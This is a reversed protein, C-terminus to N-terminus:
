ASLEAARAAWARNIPSHPKAALRERALAQAVSRRGSRVAAEVATWHFLDRQAHSGGGLSLKSLVPMLHDLAPGHDGFAFAALGRMAPLGVERTMLANIHPGRAAKEAAAFLRDLAPVRETKALAMVAHMDNFAYLGDDARTEWADAVAIWRDGVDHGLADLRWLVASADCLQLAEQLGLTKIRRDYIDLVADFREREIEALALHWWNHCALLGNEDWGQQTADLWAVNEDARGQMELVHAVAHAGWGDQPDRAVAERGNEEARAYEGTEELGFAYMGLLYSQGPVTIDWHALVRAIRDRLMLTRGLFFDGQQAMQIALIDRPHAIAIAGWVETAGEFDGARWRRAADIYARERDNAKVALPEFAALARDMYGDVARDMATAFVTALFAHGMAFDPQAKLAAVVTGVPDGHFANLQATASDLAAVASPSITSVVNGRIDQM